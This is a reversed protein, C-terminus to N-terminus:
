KPRLAKPLQASVADWWTDTLVKTHGFTLAKLDDTTPDNLDAGTDENVLHWAKVIGRVAVDTEEPKESKMGDVLLEFRAQTMYKPNHLDIWQDVFGHPGLDIHIVRSALANEDVM